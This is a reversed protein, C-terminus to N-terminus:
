EANLAVCDLLQLAARHGDLRRQLLQDLTMQLVLSREVAVPPPRAQRCTRRVSLDAASM